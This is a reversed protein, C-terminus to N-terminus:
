PQLPHRDLLRGGLIVREIKHLARIDELPNGRILVLDAAKGAQVTGYSPTPTGELFRAAYLTAARIVELNSLGAQSLLDLERHLAPGHLVGSQADSGAIIQVGAKHLRTVNDLSDQRQRSLMEVFARTADSVEYGEPKTIREDLMSKPAVELELATADFEGRGIEAYTKFVVLTPIMPLNYGRLRAIGEDTLREKYVGHIWASVGAEAADVADQYRGIHAVSRLGHTAAAQVVARALEASLRPTNEPIQDIALKIFDPQLRALEDIAPEVQAAADIQRTMANLLYDAAFGPLSERIMPAPHGGVATFIPGAAYLKPGLRSGSNLEQRLEFVDPSMAGPDFVRTIGSYLLRQLALDVNPLSRDWLAEPPSAVHCHSDILGPILTLGKGEIVQLGVIADAEKHPVISEIRGSKLLVDSSASISGTEVNVIQVNRILVDQAPGSSRTVLTPTRTAYGLTGAALALTIFLVKVKFKMPGSSVLNSGIAIAAM